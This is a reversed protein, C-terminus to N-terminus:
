LQLYQNQSSGWFCSSFNLRLKELQLGNGDLGDATLSACNRQELIGIALYYFQVMIKLNGIVCIYIYIYINVTRFTNFVTVFGRYTKPFNNYCVNKVDQLNIERMSRWVILDKLTVFHQRCAWRLNQKNFAHYPYPYQGFINILWHVMILM